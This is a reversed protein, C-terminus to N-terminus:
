SKKFLKYRKLEKRFLLFLAMAETTKNKKGFM